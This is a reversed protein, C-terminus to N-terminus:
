PTPLSTCAGTNATGFNIVATNCTFQSFRGDSANQVAGVFGADVFFGTTGGTEEGTPDTDTLATENAGNIYSMQLTNTFAKNNNSGADFAAEAEAAPNDTGNRFNTTCDLVVSDFTPPGNEDPQSGAAALTGDEDIRICPTGASNDVVVTNLLSFDAEGRIRLVQDGVGSNAIFTANSITVDSRPTNDSNANSSDFEMITDGVGPRQAALVFQLNGQVGTDFDLSDDEAGIVALNTVNVEGGFFEVGDDSSNVSQISDFTTGNGVGGTTLSQLEDGNTLVFGSYRIQIFAYDGSDDAPNAGGYEPPTPTGEVLRNCGVTGPTAAPASCDTIPARGNIILGGWQGSSNDNNLGLVNDRSTLIIPDTATGVANIQNGRNVNLFASGQGYIIVGPEITLVVGTGTSAAGQDTGVDVQGDLQYVLGDIQRLTSSVAFRSPLTCVRYVGTPGSITGGDTLGQPDSITPCGAAPTVGATPTPTPTPTPAPAPPNNITINGGTGPSVIEDAGCGALALM